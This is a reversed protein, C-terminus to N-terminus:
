RPSPVRGAAQSNAGACQSNAGALPPAQKMLAFCIRQKAVTTVSMFNQSDSYHVSPSICQYIPCFPLIIVKAPEPTLPCMQIRSCRERDM